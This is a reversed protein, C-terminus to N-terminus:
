LAARAIIVAYVAFLFSCFALFYAGIALLELRNM